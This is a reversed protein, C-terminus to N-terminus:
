GAIADAVATTAYHTQHLQNKNALALIKPNMTMLLVHHEPKDISCTVVVLALANHRFKKM